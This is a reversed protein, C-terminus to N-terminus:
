LQSKLTQLDALIPEAADLFAMRTGEPITKRSRLSRLRHGFGIMKRISKKLANNARRTSGAADASEAAQKKERAASVGALLASKSKGLDQGADVAAM